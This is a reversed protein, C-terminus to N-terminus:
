ELARSRPSASARTMLMSVCSAVQDIGGIGVQNEQDGSCM